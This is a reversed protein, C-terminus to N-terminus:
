SYLIKYETKDNNIYVNINFHLNPSFTIKSETEDNNIPVDIIFHFTCQKKIQVSM